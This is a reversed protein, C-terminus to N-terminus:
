PSKTVLQPVTAETLLFPKTASVETMMITTSTGYGTFPAARGMVIFLANVLEALVDLRYFYSLGSHARLRGDETSQLVPAPFPDTEANAALKQEAVEDAAVTDPIPLGFQLRDVEAQLYGPMLHRYVEMTIRPDRHRLIRQVAAPNAGAMM